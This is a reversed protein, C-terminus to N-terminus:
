MMIIDKRLVPICLTEDNGEHKLTAFSNFLHTTNYVTIYYKLM